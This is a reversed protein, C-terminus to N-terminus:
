RRSWTVLVGCGIRHIFLGSARDPSAHVSHAPTPADPLGNPPISNRRRTSGRDRARLLEADLIRQGSRNRQTGLKRSGPDQLDSELARYHYRYSFGTYDRRGITRAVPVIELELITGEAPTSGRSWDSTSHRRVEHLMWEM